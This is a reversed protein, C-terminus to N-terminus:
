YRLIAAVRAHEDLTGDPVMVAHGGHRLVVEIAEDIVDDVVEPHEPDTAPVIRDGEVRASLMHGEEVVLLEVRGETALPWIEHIGGAFRRSSRADDLRQLARQQDTRLWDTVLPWAAHHLDVWATRDHNGAVTGIVGLHAVGLATRVARDVGALVTPLTDRRTEADVAHTVTRTWAALNQEPERELPWDASRVEVLRQRDGLLLRVKRDSVTIVRFAATRNLDAVLDRTAFTDDVVVRRVVPRGLRVPAMFDPSACLAMAVTAPEARCEEVLSRLRGVVLDRTADDVDGTLRREAEAVLATATAADDPTLVPNPTTDFLLTVSPYSRHEQLEALLARNM